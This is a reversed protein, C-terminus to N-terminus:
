AIKFLEVYVYQGTSLHMRKKVQNKFCNMKCLLVYLLGNEDSINIIFYYRPKCSLLRRSM